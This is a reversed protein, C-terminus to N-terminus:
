KEKKISKFQESVKVIEIDNKFEKLRWAIMETANKQTIYFKVKRWKINDPKIFLLPDECCIYGDSKRILIYVERKINIKTRKIKTM